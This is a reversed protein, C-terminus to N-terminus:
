PDWFGTMFAFLFGFTLSFLIWLCIIMSDLYHSEKTTIFAYLTYAFGAMVAAVMATEIIHFSWYPTFIPEEQKEHKKKQQDSQQQQQQQLLTHLLKELKSM